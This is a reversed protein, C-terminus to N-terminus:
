SFLHISGSNCVLILNARLDIVHIFPSEYQLLDYVISIGFSMFLQTQMYNTHAVTPRPQLATPIQFLLGLWPPTLFLFAHPDKGSFLETKVFSYFYRINITSNLM